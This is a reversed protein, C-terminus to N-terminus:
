TYISIYRKLKNTQGKVESQLNQAQSNTATGDPDQKVFSAEQADQGWTFVAGPRLASSKLQEVHVWPARAWMEVPRATDELKSRM